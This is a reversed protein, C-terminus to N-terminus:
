GRFWEVNAEPALFGRDIRKTSLIYNYFVENMTILSDGNKDWEYFYDVFEPLHLAYNENESM